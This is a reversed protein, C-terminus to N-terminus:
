LEIILLVVSHLTLRTGGEGSPLSINAVAIYSLFVFILSNFVYVEVHFLRHAVFLLFLGTLGVLIGVIIKSIDLTKTCTSYGVVFQCSYTVAPVYATSPYGDVTALVNYVVGDGEYSDIVIEKIGSTFM